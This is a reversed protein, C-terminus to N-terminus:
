VLSSVALAMAQPGPPALVQKHGSTQPLLRRTGRGRSEPGRKLSNGQNSHILSSGSGAGQQGVTCM